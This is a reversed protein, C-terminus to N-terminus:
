RRRGIVTTLVGVGEVEFEVETGPRVRDTFALRYGFGLPGSGLVDGPTIEEARSVESILRPFGPSAGELAGEAWVEGDVRAELRAGELEFADSTVVYPGLSVAVGTPLSGEPRDVARLRPTPAGTSWEAMLTYGFVTAEAQRPSLKRGSRGIVCAVQLECRLERGADPAPVEDGPGLVARTGTTASPDPDAEGEPEGTTGGRARAAAGVLLEDPLFERLSSPIIPALLVAGSVACEEVVEERGLAHRAAALTTGGNRAVLAEITSPFAPHGVADPLDIVAEGMLAGLRRAGGRDYTVLRM